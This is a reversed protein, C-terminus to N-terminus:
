KPWPYSIMENFKVEQIEGNQNCFFLTLAIGSRRQSEYLLQKCMHCPYSYEGKKCKENSTVAMAVIEGEGHAAAHALASQEAHLTLSYTDSFYQASSYISGAKTLVAAAFVTQTDKPYPNSLAKKAEEILAEKQRPTIM